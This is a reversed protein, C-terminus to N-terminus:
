QTTKGPPPIAGLQQMLGLMDAVAWHEIIKGDVVRHIDIVNIEVPKNTPPIGMFEGQHTGNFTKRSWVKDGEATQDHITVQIDPFANFFMTFFQKTGDLDTLNSIGSHDVFDPSFLEDIASIDHQNQVEEVFRLVVSKSKEKSM